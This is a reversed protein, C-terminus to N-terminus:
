LEQGDEIHIQMHHKYINDTTELKGAELNLYRGKAKAESPVPSLWNYFSGVIPVHRLLGEQWIQNDSERQLEDQAQLVGRKVVESMTQLQAVAEDIEQGTNIVLTLLEEVDTDMTVMGFRVCMYYNPAPGEGLSFASDTNRLTAVLEVNRQNILKLTEPEAVGESEQNAALDQPIFRVGGLGAWHSIDVYEVSPEEKMLEIFKSRQAVTANLIDCKEVLCQIFANIDEQELGVMSVDEFPCLRLVYGTTEVDVIEINLHGADRQLIQGLWSNLNDTYASVRESKDAATETIYQFAIAPSVTQFIQNPTIDGAELRSIEVPVSNTTQSLVRICDMNSLKGSIEELMQFVGRIRAKIQNLGLSRLVCWLPLCNLRVAPTVIGLGALHATDTDARFITVFPVAPIGIWSGLTLTMSECRRESFGETPLLALASLAHGELHLWVNRDRCLDQLTTLSQSHFLSSHVNAICMLPTLGAAADQDVVKELWSFENEDEGPTVLKVTSKPLSLQVCIYEAAELYTSTTIYIVPPSPVLAAFGGEQLTPYRHHLVMRVTRVLGERIDDHCHASSGPFHLLKSLWMSVEGAIRNSLRQLPLPDLTTIYASLSHSVISLLSSRDCLKSFITGEGERYISNSIIGLVQDIDKGEEELDGPECEQLTEREGGGALTEELKNLLSETTGQVVGSYDEQDVEDEEIDEEVDEECVSGTAPILSDSTAQEEVMVEKVEMEEKVSEVEVGPAPIAGPSSTEPNQDSIEEREPEKESMKSDLL